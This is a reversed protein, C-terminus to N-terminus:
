KVCSLFIVAYFSYFVFSTTQKRCLLCKKKCLLGLLRVNIEMLLRYGKTIVILKFLTIIKGLFMYTISLQSNCSVIVKFKKYRLLPGKSHLISGRNYKQGKLIYEM